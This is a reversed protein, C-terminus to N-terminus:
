IKKTTFRKSSGVVVSLREIDHQLLAKSADKKTISVIDMFKTDNRLFKRVAHPDIETHIIETVKLEYVNGCVTQGVELDRLGELLSEEEKKLVRIRDRIEGLKDIQKKM